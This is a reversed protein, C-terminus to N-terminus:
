AARLFGLFTAVKEQLSQSQHALGTTSELM